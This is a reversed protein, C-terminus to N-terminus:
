FINKMMMQFSKLKGKGKVDFLISKILGLRAKWIFLKNVKLPKTCQM